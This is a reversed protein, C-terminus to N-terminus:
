RVQYAENVTGPPCFRGYRFSEQWLWSFLISLIRVMLDETLALSCNQFQQWRRLDLAGPQLGGLNSWPGNAKPSIAGSLGPWVRTPWTWIGTYDASKCALVSANTPDTGASVRGSADGDSDSQPSGRIDSGFFPIM